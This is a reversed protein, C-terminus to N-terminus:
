NASFVERAILKLCGLREARCLRTIVTSFLFFPPSFLRGHPRDPQPEALVSGRCGRSIVLQLRRAGPLRSLRCLDLRPTDPPSRQARQVGSWAPGGFSDADALLGAGWRLNWRWRAYLDNREPIQSPSAGLLKSTCEAAVDLDTDSEAFSCGQYFHPAGTRHFITPPPRHSPVALAGGSGVRKKKKKEEKKM